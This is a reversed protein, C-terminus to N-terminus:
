VIQEKYKEIKCTHQKTKDDYSIGVLLLNDLYQKLGYHYDKDKIQKLATKTTQNWKLEIIMAPKDKRPIFVLDARGQGTPMEKIITYGDKAAYYALYLTYSLANEDNYQFISTELHAEEIYKAVKEEDGKLTAELLEKSNLLAKTTYQWSSNEISNIFSSIVEQNPIFCQKTDQNYTLYGLHILLTLVDDKSNFTTMDNQFKETNINIKERAIMKIIAEKLGDFNLDIYHQLAEFTETNNWYNSFSGRTISAVVSRPSFVSVNKTLYYGDYWQKMVKYDVNNEKCLTEVEKETFGMFNELPTPDVMSIEDFMNLASHTGYKKIPLIGTMYVLEVYSKDKLLNRLFDLYREQDEKREKFERFICDWEDIVFVFKEEQISFLDNLCMILNTEDFYDIPFVRIIERLVRKTLLDLMQNVDHTFSLFEQMNLHIVNRKNLHKLYNPTQAIKLSDFLTHSDCGKSYYAVLMNADTSKGFRRPRSVCFAKQTTSIVQNSYDILMSKDVFIPSNYTEFYSQNNPNLYIGM